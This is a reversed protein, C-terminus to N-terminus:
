TTRWTRGAATTGRAPCTSQFVGTATLAEALTKDHGERPVHISIVHKPRCVRPLHDHGERPVHISIVPRMPKIPRSMCDHGERPVHISIDFQLRYHCQMWTTGRAPCTSQFQWMADCYTDEFLRAGRPARPNFYRTAATSQRGSGDHGERPVHISIAVDCRLIYGRLTTGRAPCTSQFISSMGVGYKAALDHGERPVHISIYKQARKGAATDPRAGRPARPNFNFNFLLSNFSSVLRAGRPARPNFNRVMSSIIPKIM